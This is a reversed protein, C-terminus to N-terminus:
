FYESYWAKEFYKLIWTRPDRCHGRPGEESVDEKRMSEVSDADNESTTGSKSLNLPTGDDSARQEDEGRFNLIRWFGGTTGLGDFNAKQSLALFQQMLIQQPTLQTIRSTYVESTSSEPESLSLHSILSESSLDGKSKEKKMTLGNMGAWDEFGRKSPRGPRTSWNILFM